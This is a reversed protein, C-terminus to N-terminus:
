LAFFDDDPGARDVGLVSAFAACIIEERVTAAGKGMPSQTHDPAPLAAKDLKGAPTQPLAPLTVVASPIMYDPLQRAAHERATAALRDGDAADGSAPVIYGTLRQDGSADERATVAAQAVGPCAALAAAVEGPEIRFGRIK